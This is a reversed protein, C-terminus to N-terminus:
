KGKAKQKTQKYQQASTSKRANQKVKKYQKEGASKRAQKKVKNYPNNKQQYYKDIRSITKDYRSEIPTTKGNKIQQKMQSQIQKTTLKLSYGYDYIRAMEGSDFYEKFGKETNEMEDVWNVYDNFNKITSPYRAKATEYSKQIQEDTAKAKEDYAGVKSSKASEFMKAIDLLESEQKKTLGERTTFNTTKSKIELDNELYFNLLALRTEQVIYSEAGAKDWQALRQNLRKLLKKDEPTM